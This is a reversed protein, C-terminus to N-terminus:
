ESNATASALSESAGISECIRRRRVWSAILRMRNRELRQRNETPLERETQYPLDRGAHLLFEVPHKGVQLEAFENVLLWGKRFDLIHEFVRERLFNGVM